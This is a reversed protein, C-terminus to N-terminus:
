SLHNIRRAKLDFRPLSGPAVATVEARFLLEDRIARSVSETIASQSTELEIRLAALSGSQDVQVRYEAVEPFRHIIAELASPYLNNGRLHIMDDTRGLIGGALRVFTRGCSCPAPDVCVLDGTRYRLVPSGWRGLNTLVLEGVQGPSVAEETQPDIVEVVCESELIHLGGPNTPCEIGLAGVETLGSHDFVRAGWADEIRQRTAPISGGPEGAVILMRVGASDLDMGQQQAVEALRLAYTPTCLVVTVQNDLLFRLRATSSMGGGTLCLYGLRLAAEFGTWFGLFPGFSFPFFLRDGPQLGVIRYITEWCSLLWDWSAATDLWRLPQGTTGSTQHLRRYRSLPYTLISGYPPFTAQDSFLEGKTTFSLRTLDQLQRIDAPSLNASAFKRAYFANRPLIDALMASLRETQLSTLQSRELYENGVGAM